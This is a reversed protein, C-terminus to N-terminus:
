PAPRLWHALDQQILDQLTVIDGRYKELLISWTVADMEPAKQLDFRKIRERVGIRLAEPLMRRALFRVPNPRTLLTKLTQSKHLGGVNHAMSMDPQFQDVGIFSHLDDLMAQPQKRFEEYLYVKVNDRGFLDFYTMLAQSYYGRALYVGSEGAYHKGLHEYDIADLLKENEERSERRYMVFASYAREIPQRLIVILRANPFRDYIGKAAKESHLYTTSAEGIAKEGRSEVFLKLYNEWNTVARAADGSDLFAPNENELAFFHPEKVPSMYIQPHQSLYAALATTGAKAAGLIFFNPKAIATM